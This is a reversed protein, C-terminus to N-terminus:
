KEKTNLAEILPLLHRTRRAQLQKLVTILRDHLYDAEANEFEINAALETMKFTDVESIGGMGDPGTEAQEEGVSELKKLVDDCVTLAKITDPSDTAVAAYVVDDYDRKSLTVKRM